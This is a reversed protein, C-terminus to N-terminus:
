VQLAERALEYVYFSLGASPALKVWNLACGKFLTEVGEKQSIEVMAKVINNSSLAGMMARRRVVELPFTVTAATVGAVAGFVLAWGKPIKEEHTVRVYMSRMADYGALNVGAYPIVGAISAGLGGYLALPGEARTIQVLADGIGKYQASVALRTRLTELPYCLTTSTVGAMSGAAATQWAGPAVRKGDKDRRSLLKKYLDFAALQLSKQPIVRVVDALNGAFFGRPGQQSWTAKVVDVVGDQGVMVKMRICELPATATKSVAGAVGGALLHGLTAPLRRLAARVKEQPKRQEALAATAAAPAAAATGIEGEDLAAAVDRGQLGTEDGPLAAVVLGAAAATGFGGYVEDGRIKRAGRPPVTRRRKESDSGPKRTQGVAPRDGAIIRESRPAARREVNHADHVM